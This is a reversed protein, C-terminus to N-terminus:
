LGDLNLWDLLGTSELEKRYVRLLILDRIKETYFNHFSAQYLEQPIEENEEDENYWKCGSAWGVTSADFHLTYPYTRCVWPREKHISCRGASSLFTCTQDEKQRLVPFVKWHFSTVMAQLAPKERLTKTSFTPKELTMHETWGRDVFLAVDVLRLLVTNHPGKCCVEPCNLCDPIRSSSFQRPWSDLEPRTFDFEQHLKWLRWAHRLARVPKEEYRKWLARVTRELPGSNLARQFSM